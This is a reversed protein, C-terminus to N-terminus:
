DAEPWFDPQRDFMEAIVIGALRRSVAGGAALAEHDLREVLANAAALSREMRVVIFDVVTADVALQRDAFLKTLVRRLLDDDPEALEVPQMARLRSALDPLGLPLAAPWVRSTLLVATGRENALNLLHFLAKQDLPGAHLDEVAVAGGIGDAEAMGLDRAAIV